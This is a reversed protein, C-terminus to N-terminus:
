CVTNRRSDGGEGDGSGTRRTAAPRVPMDVGEELDEFRGDLEAVHRSGGSSGSLGRVFTDLAMDQGDRGFSQTSGLKSHFAESSGASLETPPAPSSSPNSVRRGNIPAISETDGEKPEDIRSLERERERSPWQWMKQKASTSEDLSTGSTGPWRANRKLSIGEDFASPRSPRSRLGSQGASSANFTSGM